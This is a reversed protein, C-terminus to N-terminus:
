KSNDDETETLDAAEDAWCDVTIIVPSLMAPHPPIGLHYWFGPPANSLEKFQEQLLKIHRRVTTRKHPDDIRTDPVNVDSVVYKVWLGEDICRFKNVCTECEEEKCPVCKAICWDGYSRLYPFDVELTSCKAKKNGRMIFLWILSWNHM